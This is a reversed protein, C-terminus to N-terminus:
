LGSGTSLPTGCYLALLFGFLSARDRMGEFGTSIGPPVSVDSSRSTHQYMPLPCQKGEALQLSMQAQDSREVQDNEEHAAKEQRMEEGVEM